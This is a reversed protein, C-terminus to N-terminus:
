KLAFCALASKNRLILNGDAIVPAAWSQGGLPTFRGIEQYGAPSLNVMVAAGTKGDLAILVGDVATIPGKEFGPQKWVAKGAKPDLCVLNGAPDSTSYIYGEHLIPSSFHSMIERNDWLVKPGEPTVELLIGGRGYGSTVFIQNGMIIPAAANVEAKNTWAQQWLTKGTEPDVGLVSFGTLVVYQRKGLISAIVPTAYGAIESPGGQWITKGTKKDLAAVAAKPGGPVVILHDGDILPSMAMQWRPLKGGFDAIINRSWLPRGNKTDLCHLLGMRSLTYVRDREVAPSSHAYGRDTEGGDKYTYRWVDKGTRLDLAIVTDEGAQHDLIYVKGRAVVPGAFGNDVLPVKWLEKPPRTNWEKNIRKEPAFGDAKPGRFQPWDAAPVAAPLCLVLATVMAFRRM